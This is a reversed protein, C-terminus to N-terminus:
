HSQWTWRSPLRIPASRPFSATSNPAHRRPAVAFATCRRGCCHSAVAMADFEDLAERAEKAARDLVPEAADLDGLAMLSEGILTLLEIRVRPQGRIETDLKKEAQKLLDIASLTTSGAGSYPSAERFIGAIFEKV